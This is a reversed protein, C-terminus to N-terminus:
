SLPPFFDFDIGEFDDSVFSFLHGSNEIPSSMPAGLDTFPAERASLSAQPTAALYPTDRNLGFGFVGANPTISRGINAAGHGEGDIGTSPEQIIEPDHSHARFDPPGLEHLRSQESNTSM